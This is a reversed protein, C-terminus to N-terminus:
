VITERIFHEKSSHFNCVNCLIVFAEINDITVNM